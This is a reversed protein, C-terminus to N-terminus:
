VLVGVCHFEPYVMQAQSVLFSMADRLLYSDRKLPRFKLLLSKSVALDRIEDRLFNNVEYTEGDAFGSVVQVSVLEVYGSVSYSALIRHLEANTKIVTGYFSVMRAAFSDDQANDMLECPFYDTVYDRRKVVKCMEWVIGKPSPTTVIMTDKERRVASIDASGYDALYGNDPGEKGLDFEYEYNVKDIAALPFDDSKIRLRCINWVPVLGLKVNGALKGYSVKYGSATGAETGEPEARVLMVDFMKFLHPANVTQWPIGNSIFM